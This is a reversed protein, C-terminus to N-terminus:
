LLLMALPNHDDSISIHSLLSDSINPQDLPTVAYSLIPYLIYHCILLSMIIIYLSTYQLAEKHIGTGESLLSEM